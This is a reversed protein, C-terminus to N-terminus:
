QPRAQGTDGAKRRSKRKKFGSQGMEEIYSTVALITNLSVPPIEKVENTRYDALYKDSNAELGQRRCVLYAVSEAEIEMENHPASVRSDWWADEDVGVHGCFIHALEHTLSSYKDELTYEKNLFILYKAWPELQLEKYQGQLSMNLSMASGAHKHRLLTERITIGHSQCNELTREWIQESLEGHTRYPRLLEEPVPAGETDKLDYVFLVPSMPALIVLPRADFKPRRRFRKQWTGVTAVYSVAPNQTYLLLCNFPSYKPFRSIFSLMELYRASSRYRQSATFMEDLANVDLRGVKEGTQDEAEESFIHLQEGM